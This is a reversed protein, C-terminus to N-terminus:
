HTARRLSSPSVDAAIGTLHTIMSKWAIKTYTYRQHTHDYVQQMGYQVAEAKFATLQRMTPEPIQSTQNQKEETSPPKKQTQRPSLKINHFVPICNFNKLLLHDKLSAADYFKQCLGIARMFILFQQKKLSLGESNGYITWLTRKTSDTLESRDVLTILRDDTTLGDHTVMDFLMDYYTTEQPTLAETISKAKLKHDKTDVTKSKERKQRPSESGSSCIQSVNSSKKQKKHKRNPKCRSTFVASNSSMQSEHDDPSWTRICRAETTM